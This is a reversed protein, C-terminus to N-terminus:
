KQGKEKRVLFCDSKTRDKTVVIIGNTFITAWCYRKGYGSVRGGEVVKKVCELAIEPAIDDEITIHIKSSM